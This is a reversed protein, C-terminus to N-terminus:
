WEAYQVERLKSSAKWGRLVSKKLSPRHYAPPQMSPQSRFATAETDALNSAFLTSTAMGNGLLLFLPFLLSRM